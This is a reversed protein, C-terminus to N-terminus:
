GKYRFMDNHGFPMTQGCRGVGTSRVKIFMTEFLIGM